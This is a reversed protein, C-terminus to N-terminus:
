KGVKTANAGQVKEYSRMAGLGLMGLLIPSLTAYDFTPLPGVDVKFLKLLFQCVQLGVFQWALASGCVWGIFPRWGAVFVSEHSAEAANVKLQEMVPDLEGHLLAMTIEQQMKAADLESMKEPFVRKLVGNLFTSTAEIAGSYPALDM